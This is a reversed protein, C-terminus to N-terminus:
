RRRSARATLRGDNGERRAVEVVTEAVRDEDNGVDEQGKLRPPTPCRFRVSGVLRGCMALPLTHGGARM